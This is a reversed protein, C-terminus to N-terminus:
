FIKRNLFNKENTKKEENKFKLNEFFNFYHSNALLYTHM